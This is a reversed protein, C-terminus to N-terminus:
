LVIIVKLQWFIKLTLNRSNSEEKLDNSNHASINPFKHKEDDPSAVVVHAKASDDNEFVSTRSFLPKETQYM